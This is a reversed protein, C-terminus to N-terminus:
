EDTEGTMELTDGCHYPYSIPAPQQDDGAGAAAYPTGPIVYPDFDGGAKNRMPRVVYPGSRDASMSVPHECEPIDIRSVADFVSTNAHPRQVHFASRPVNTMAKRHQSLQRHWPRAQGDVETGRYYIPREYSLQGDASAHSFARVLEDRVCMSAYTRDACHRRHERWEAVNMDHLSQEGKYGTLTNQRHDLPSVSGYPLSQVVYTLKRSRIHRVRACLQVMDTLPPTNTAFEFVCFAQDFYEDEFSCGVSVKNTLIAADAGYIHQLYSEDNVSCTRMVDANITVIRPATPGRALAKLLTDIATATRSSSTYVVCPGAKPSYAAVVVASKLEDLTDLEVLERYTASPQDPDYIAFRLEPALKYVTETPAVSFFFTQLFVCM